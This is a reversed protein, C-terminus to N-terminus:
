EGVRKWVGRGRSTRRTRERTVCRARAARVHPCRRVSWDLCRGGAGAQCRTQRAHRVKVLKEEVRKEMVQVRREM